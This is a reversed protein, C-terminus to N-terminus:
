IHFSVSPVIPTLSATPFISQLVEVLQTTGLTAELLSIMLQRSMLRKTLPNVVADPRLMKITQVLHGLCRAPVAVLLSSVTVGKIHRQNQMLASTIM